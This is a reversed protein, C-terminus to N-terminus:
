IYRQDLTADKHPPFWGGAGSNVIMPLGLALLRIISTFKKTM